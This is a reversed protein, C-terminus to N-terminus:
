ISPIYQWQLEECIKKWIADQACLKDGSKLLPFRELYEDQELLECFKHLVYNYSLFNKRDPPAHKIFPSQIQIFMKIFERVLAPPFPETPKGSLQSVIYSCHEYYKSLQTKKLIAKVQEKTVDVMNVIKQKRLELLITGFVSDPIMAHERGESSNITEILHNTRKFHFVSGDKPVLGGGARENDLVMYEVADCASCVRQSELVYTVTDHSGCESCIADRPAASAADGHLARTFAEMLGAKTCADADTNVLAADRERSKFYTLISNRPEAPRVAEGELTAGEAIDYYKLLTDGTRLHYDLSDAGRRLQALSSRATELRHRKKLLDFTDSPPANELDAQLANVTALASASAAKAAGIRQLQLKHELDLTSKNM